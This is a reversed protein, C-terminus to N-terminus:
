APADRYLKPRARVPELLSWDGPEVEFGKPFPPRVEMGLSQMVREDRYYCGLIIRTLYTLAAGGTERLATAVAERRPPPLDAFGGGSLTELMGLVTGVHDADRGFSALIDAFIADDDAGPVGYAPSPPIMM